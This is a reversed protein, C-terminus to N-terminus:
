TELGPQICHTNPRGAKLTSHQPCKKNVAPFKHEMAFYWSFPRQDQLTAVGRGCSLACSSLALKLVFRTCMIICDVFGLKHM